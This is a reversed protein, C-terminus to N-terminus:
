FLWFLKMAHHYSNSVPPSILTILFINLSIQPKWLCTLCEHFQVYSVATWLVQTYRFCFPLLLFSDLHCQIGINLFSSRVWNIVSCNEQFIFYMKFLWLIFIQHIIKLIFDSYFTLCGSQEHVPIVSCCKKNTQKLNYVTIQFCHSEISFEFNLRKNLWM